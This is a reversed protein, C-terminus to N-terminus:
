SIQCPLHQALRSLDPPTIERPCRKFLANSFFYSSITQQDEFSVKGSWLINGKEVTSYVTLKDGDTLPNLSAYGTQSYDQLSWIVGETGTEFFPELAGYKVVGNKELKAPLHSFFMSAWTEPSLTKEFGHVWSGFIEQQGYQPNLPYPRYGRKSELQVEGDWLVEGSSITNFVSVISRDPLLITPAPLFDEATTAGLSKSIDEYTKYGWDYIIEYKENGQPDAPMNNRSYAMCLLGSNLGKKNNM